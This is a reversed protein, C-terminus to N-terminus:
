RRRERRRFYRMLADITSRDTSLMVREVGARRLHGDRQRRRQQAYSAFQERTRRDWPSILSPAGGEPPFFHLSSNPHLDREAPDEVVMATVDHRRALLALPEDWADCLFDSIVFIAARRRQVQATFRLADALGNGPSPPHALVTRIIRWVHGESHRPPIYHDVDDSCGVLGIKDRNRNAAFALAAVCEGAVDCKLQKRTGFMMSASLDVILMVTLEREERFLKVYPQNQRATVNWDISRADDGIQYPRVEEFEIGSGRFAARYEGAVLETILASMRIHLHRIRKLTEADLVSGPTMPAEGKRPAGM